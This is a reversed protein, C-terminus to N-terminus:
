APLDALGFRSTESAPTSSAPAYRALPGIAVLAAFLLGIELHYVVAYSTAPSSMAAGLAGSASLHAVLDRLGGGVFIALGVATAQVAGWAGLAIGSKGDRALAMASTLTGVSFMGGGMGIMFVGVCFLPVLSLVGGCIVSVFALIGWVMGHGALRHPEGGRALQRAAFALGALTGASWLATLSTTQGVSLGLIKGGYPELLVDQMSFAAAGLGVAVLLRSARGGASFEAWAEKFPPRPKDKATLAFNQSEQKWLATMNLVIALVAAGQVVGVLKVEQFDALVLGMLVGSILMGVLLMVYLLAVVRPRAHEPALDNALALGATQTTHIGAGVLLFAVMAAVHGIWEAGVGHGGSILLSFPMIALGGFQLLSGFWIYPGRRWGLHSRHTDSRFGILARFPAFLFPIAVMAAVLVAPVNLEVILVRNLTGTLLVTTMGVSVQFLSLRLLRRLPLETTAADAFPLCATILRAWQARSDGRAAKEAVRQLLLENLM